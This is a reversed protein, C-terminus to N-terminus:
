KLKEKKDYWSYISTAYKQVPLKQALISLNDYKISHKMHHLQKLTFLTCELHSLGQFPIYFIYYRGYKFSYCEDQRQLM